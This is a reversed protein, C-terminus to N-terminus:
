IILSWFCESRRSGKLGLALGRGVPGELESVGQLAGLGAQLPVAPLVAGDRVVDGAVEVAANLCLGAGDQRVVDVLRVGPHEVHPVLESHRCGRSVLCRSRVLYVHRSWDRFVDYTLVRM